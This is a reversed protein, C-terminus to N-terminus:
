PEIVFVAAASRNGAEDVAILEWTNRVGVDGYEVTSTVGVVRFMLSGNLRVGYRILSALTVTATSATWSLWTETSGDGALTAWLSPATPAIADDPAAATTVTLPDSAPSLNNAFDRAYVTFTYSTSPALGKFTASTDHGFSTAGGGFAVTYWLTGEDTPASWALSVHTPGVDTAAVVPRGPSVGDKLTTFTVSNSSRASGNGANDRAWVVLTFTRNAELGATYTHTTTTGSVTESSVNACCITYSAIGSQDKSADWALTVTYSTVRLVRLNTPATPASRDKAAAVVPATGLASFLAVALLVALVRPLRRSM